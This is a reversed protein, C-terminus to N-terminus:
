VGKMSQPTIPGQHRRFKEAVALLQGDQGEQNPHGSRYAAKGSAVFVVANAIEAASAGRKLPVAALFAAKESARTRRVQLVSVEM